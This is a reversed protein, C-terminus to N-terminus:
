RASESQNATKAHHHTAHMERLAELLSLVSCVALALNLSPSPELADIRNFALDLVSREAPSKKSDPVQVHRIYYLRALSDLRVRGDRRCTGQRRVNSGLLAGVTLPDDQRCHKDVIIETPPTSHVSAM